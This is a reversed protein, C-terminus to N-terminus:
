RGNRMTDIVELLEATRRQYAALLKRVDGPSMTLPQYPVALLERARDVRVEALDDLTAAAATLQQLTM